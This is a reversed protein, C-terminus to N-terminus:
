GRHRRRRADYELAAVIKSLENPECWAIRETGFMHKAMADAYAWPRRQEALYAEIKSLLPARGSAPRKPKGKSGAEWGLAVFHDVLQSLQPITLRSASDQGFKIELVARYDDDSMGLDKKAIHIKAM